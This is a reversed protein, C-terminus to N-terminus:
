SRRRPLAPRLPLHRRKGRKWSPASARWWAPRPLRRRQQVARRSRDGPRDGLPFLRLDHRAPLHRARWLSGIIAVACGVVGSCAAIAKKFIAPAYADYWFWRALLQGPRSVRRDLLVFWAVGLKAQFGLEAACWESAFWVGTIVIAFVMLIQGCLLKTPTM